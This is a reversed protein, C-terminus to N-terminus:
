YDFTYIVGLGTGNEEPASTNHTASSTETNVTARLKIGKTLDYQVEARTGGSFSQRAGIYLRDAVYRGAEITTSAGGGTESSSGISLRDLGLSRRLSNVPNFSGTAGTLSAVAQAAMALQVPSLKTASQQFFLRALVEDQPLQPSSSLTIVPASSYGSIKLTATVDGSTTEAKFDLLPDLRNRLGYGDFTLRGSQIVLTQGVASLTGRRLTLGGRAQPASSTGAIKLEGFLQAELGHGRVSIHDPVSLTLDLLVASTGTPQPVAAQGVRMADLRIVSVPLKEPLNIEGSLVTVVGSLTASEELKGSLTLNADARASIRDSVIPEAQTARLVINIPMGPSAFDLMGSGEIEGHHVKASLRVLRLRTGDALVQGAISRLRFSHSYDVFEGGGLDLTGQLRPATWSGSVFCNVMLNGRITQGYVSTFVNALALDAVGEARLQIQGGPNLPTTGSVLLQTGTRTTLRAAAIEAAQGQLKGKMDLTAAFPSEQPIGMPRLRRGTVEFDGLPAAFTGLARIRASLEGDISLSPAFLRWLQSTVHDVSVALDLKPLVRGSAHLKTGAFGADFNDIAVGGNVDLVSAHALAFSAGKWTGQVTRLTLRRSRTDARASANVALPGGAATGKGSLVLDLGNLPGRAGLAVDLMVGSSAMRTARMSASLEPSVNWGVVSGAADLRAVTTGGLRLQVGSGQIDTRVRQGSSAITMSGSLSGALPAAVLAAADRLDAWAFRFEGSMPRGDSALVLDGHARLSKWDGKDVSLRLTNGSRSALTGAFLLPAGGFRGGVRFTASPKRTLGEATAAIDIREPRLATTGVLGGGGLTVRPNDLAGDVKGSLRLVGRLDPSLQALDPLAADFRYDARHDAGKGALTASVAAGALRLDVAALTHGQFEASGTLRGNRGVMRGITSTSAIDARGDLRVIQRDAGEVGSLDIAASGDLGEEVLKALSALAPLAIHVSGKLVGRTEISGDARLVPHRIRFKVPRAKARFDVSAEVTVPHDALLSSASGPLHLVDVEGGFQGKGGHAALDGSVLTASFGNAALDAMRLTATIDPEDFSGRIRGHASIASWSITASPKMAPATAAFSGDARRARVDLTGDGQARLAGAILRLRFVNRTGEAGARASLQVPGLYPLGLLGGAIGDPGEHADVAGIITDDASRFDARYFDSGGLRRIDIAAAMNSVARYHLSGAAAFAAARGALAASVVLRAVAFHDVDLELESSTEGSPEPRRYVTASRATLTEVRLPGFLAAMAHWTLAIGHASLWIGRSDRIELSDVSVSNPLDGRLGTLVVRGDSVTRVLGSVADRGPDTRLLLLLLLAFLISLAAFGYGLRLLWNRVQRKM